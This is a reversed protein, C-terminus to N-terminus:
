WDQPVLYLRSTDFGLKSAKEILKDYIDKEMKPQRSLIWLYDYSSAVMAYDYQQLDLDIIIYDAYFPGFFSVKLYGSDPKAALKAKGKATKHKGKGTEKYGENIVQVKGDQRLSYTATVNVLGKEFSTPIRAIEYWKGLYRNLDFGSVPEFKPMTFEKRSKCLKRLVM